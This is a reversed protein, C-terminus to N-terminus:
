ELGRLFAQYSPWQNYPVGARELNMMLQEYQAMSGQVRPAAMPAANANGPVPMIPGQGPAMVAPVNSNGAPPQAGPRAAYPAGLTELQRGAGFPIGPDRMIAPTDGRKMMSRAMGVDRPMRGLSPHLLGLAMGLQPLMSPPNQAYGQWPRADWLANLMGQQGRPALANIPEDDM